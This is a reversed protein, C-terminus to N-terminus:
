CSTKGSRYSTHHVYRIEVPLRMFPFPDNAANFKASAGQYTASRSSAYAPNEEEEFDDDGNRTARRNDVETRVISSERKFPRKRPM